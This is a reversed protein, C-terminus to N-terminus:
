SGGSTPSARPALETSSGVVLMNIDLYSGYASWDDRYILDRESKVTFKQSTASVL